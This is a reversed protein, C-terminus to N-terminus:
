LRVCPGARQGGPVGDDAGACPRRHDVCATGRLDEVDVAPVFLTDPTVSRLPPPTAICAGAEPPATSTVLRLEWLSVIVFTATVPLWEAPTPPPIAAEASRVITSEVTDRVGGRRCPTPPQLATLSGISAAAFEVIVPLVAIASAGPPPDVDPGATARGTNTLAVIAPLEARMRRRRADVGVGSREAVRDDGAVRAALTRRGRGCGRVVREGGVARAREGPGAILARHVGSEAGSASLPPGVSVREIPGVLGAILLPPAPQGVM